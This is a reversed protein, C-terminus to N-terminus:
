LKHPRKPDNPKPDQAGDPGPSATQSVEQEDAIEDCDHTINPDCQPSTNDFMANLDGSSTHCKSPFLDFKFQSNLNAVTEPMLEDRGKVKSAGVRGSCFYFSLIKQANSPASKSYILVGNGM